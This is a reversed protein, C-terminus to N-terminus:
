DFVRDLQDNWLINRNTPQHFGVSVMGRDYDLYIKGIMSDGASNTYTFDGFRGDNLKIDIKIEKSNEGYQEYGKKYEEHYIGTVSNENISTVDFIREGIKELKGDKKIVISNKYKGIMMEPNSPGIYGPNVSKEVKKGSLDPKTVTTSNVNYVKGLLEFTLNHEKGNNDKGYIVGTGLISQLLGNKDVVMKGKVEKVFIDQTIRPQMSEQAGSIRNVRFNNKVQYSVIANVLTPIQAESISGSLEKSGDNKESVVVYDKLNGVFADAIKEIDDMGKEKFPNGAGVKLGEQKFEQVHYIGQDAEYSIVTNKDRYYFGEGKFDGDVRNTVNECAVKKMDYKNVTNESSIVKGNDKMVFSGDITYSSVNSDLEQATYKLAAKAQDYGSKSAVEAIATTFLMLSGIAFSIAMTTKKSFRVM